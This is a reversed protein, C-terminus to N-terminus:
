SYCPVGPLYNVEAVFFPSERFVAGLTVSLAHDEMQNQHALHSSDPLDANVM